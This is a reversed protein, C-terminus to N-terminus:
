LHSIDVLVLGDDNGGIDREGDLAPDDGDLSWSSLECLHALRVKIGPTPSPLASSKHMDYDCATLCM